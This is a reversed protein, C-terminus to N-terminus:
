PKQLHIRSYKRRSVAGLFSTSEDGFRSQLRSQLGGFRYRVGFRVGFKCFADKTCTIVHLLFRQDGFINPGGIFSSYTAREPDKSAPGPTNTRAWKKPPESQACRGTSRGPCEAWGADM